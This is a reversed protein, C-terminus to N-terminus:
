QDREIELYNTKLKDPSKANKFRSLLNYQRPMLGKEHHMDYIFLSDISKEVGVLKKISDWTLVFFQHNGDIPSIIDHEDSLTFEQVSSSLEELSGVLYNATPRYRTLIIHIGTNTDSTVDEYFRLFADLKSDVELEYGLIKLEEMNSLLVNLESISLSLDPPSDRDLDGLLSRDGVINEMRRGDVSVDSPLLQLTHALKNRIPRWFEIQDQLVTGLALPSSEFSTVIFKKTMDGNPMDRVGAIIEDLLTRIRVEAQTEKYKIPNLKLAVPSLNRNEIIYHVKEAPITSLKSRIVEEYGGFFLVPTGALIFNEFTKIQNASYNHIEDIVVLDWESTLISEKIKANKLYHSTLLSITGAAM